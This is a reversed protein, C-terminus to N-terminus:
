RRALQILDRQMSLCDQYRKTPEEELARDLIHDLIAPVRQSSVVSLPPMGKAIRKYAMVMPDGGQFPLRGAICEYLTLALSYIDSRGDMPDGELQEPSMYRPTGLM